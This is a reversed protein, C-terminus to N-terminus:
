DNDKEDEYEVDVKVVRGKKIQIEFDGMDYWGDEIYDSDLKPQVPLISERIKKMDFNCVKELYSIIAGDTISLNKVKQQKKKKLRLSHLKQNKDNVLQNFLSVDKQYESLEKQVKEIEEDLNKVELKKSM